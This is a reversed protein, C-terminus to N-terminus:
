ALVLLYTKCDNSEDVGFLVANAKDTDIDFSPFAPLSLNEAM